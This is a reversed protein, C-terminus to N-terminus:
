GFIKKIKYIVKKFLNTKFLNNYTFDDAKKDQIIFTPHKLNLLDIKKAELNSVKKDISTTHTADVGFGVNSVLNINPTICLGSQSWITYMWPYDWTNLQGQYMRDFTRLWGQRAKKNEWVSAILNQEKFQPFTKMSLDNLQWARRWTAWGWLHNYKSFYYSGDGRTQGEQFNSGGIHMVRDDQHYYILMAECFGFFSQNPVCDDELIIGEEVNEFFWDLGSSVGMKCGLNKELYHKHVECDWDVAEIIKRTETCKEAEGPKNARPGDATVYLHKPQIKKIAEFVQRTTDPRNFIMFLIPTNLAM